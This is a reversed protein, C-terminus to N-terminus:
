LAHYTEIADPNIEYRAGPVNASSNFFLGTGGVKAHIGPPTESSGSSSPTYFSPMLRVRTGERIELLVFRGLDGAVGNTLRAGIYLAGDYISAKDSCQAIYGHHGFIMGTTGARWNIGDDSIVTSISGRAVDLIVFRGDIVYAQRATSSGYNGPLDTLAQSLNATAQWSTRGDQSAYARDCYYDLVLYRSGNFLMYKWQRSEPLPLTECGGTVTFLYYYQSSNLGFGYAGAAVVNILTTGNLATPWTLGNDNSISVTQRNNWWLLITRGINSISSVNSASSRLVWTKLDASTYVSAGVSGNIQTGAYIEGNHCVSELFYNPSFAPLMRYPSDGGVRIGPAFRELGKWVPRSRLQLGMDKQLSQALRRVESHTVVDFSM